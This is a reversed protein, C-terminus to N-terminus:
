FKCYFMAVVSVNLELNNTDEELDGFSFFEYNQFRM